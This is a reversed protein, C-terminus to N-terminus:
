ASPPGRDTHSSFGPRAFAVSIFAIGNGAVTLEPLITLSPPAADTPQHRQACCDMPCDKPDSGAASIGPDSSSSTEEQEMGDCHHHAANQQVQVRHCMPVVKGSGSCAAALLPQALTCVLALIATISLIRRM